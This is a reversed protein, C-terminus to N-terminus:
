LKGANTPVGVGSPSQGSNVASRFNVPLVDIRNLERDAFYTMRFQTPGIGEVSYTLDNAVEPALAVFPAPNASDTRDTELPKPAVTTHDFAARATLTTGFRYAVSLHPDLAGVDYAGGSSPVVHTGTARLTTGLDLRPTMDWTDHAYALYSLLIPHASIFQDATPVVQELLSTDTRFDLGYSQRHKRHENREIDVSLGSMRGGQQASLSIVGDPFSLDDWFPGGAHSSFQSQYLQWRVLADESIHMWQLKLVDYTGRVGSAADVPANPANGGPYPTSSGNLAGYTEGAFPTGYQQYNAEGLLMDASLDDRSSLADHVNAALSFAGRTQLALGYTGAEAPYFTHGDGYAFHESSMTTAVAYRWHLDPTAWRRELSLLSQQAGIGSELTASGIAPYAGGSPVQDIVGGLANDAQTTFGALSVSTSAIGTTPLQAGVVNGGPEAILGQVVPVSDYEFAADDIKGGRLIANSFPDQDIGPIGVLAAEVTGASYSGLGSSSATPREARAAPGTVTFADGTSGTSFANAVSHVSAITRLRRVLTFAIGIRRGPLVVVGPESVPEYEPKEVDVTYTDPAIGPMTFRGHADTIAAYRGSPSRATVRALAVPRGANDAVRGAIVGGTAQAACALTADGLAIALALFLTRVM